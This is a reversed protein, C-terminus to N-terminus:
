TLAIPCRVADAPMAVLVGDPNELRTGDAMDAADRVGVLLVRWPQEGTLRTTTVVDGERTVEFSAGAGETTAPVEVSVRDGDALAYVALTVDQAYAYDPRDDRAGLPLVSGGRVYVPVEEFGCTERVWTPGHVVSGTQLQTWTGSPLYYSTEGSATFVPAVLLRGGLMYQRDLHACTEDDAFEVVMPRMVPIGDGSALQAQGFLYPM